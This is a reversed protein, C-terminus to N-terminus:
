TEGFPAAAFQALVGFIRGIGRFVLWGSNTSWRSGETLQVGREPGHQTGRQLLCLADGGAYM